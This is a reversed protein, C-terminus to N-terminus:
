TIHGSRPLTRNSMCESLLAVRLAQESGWKEKISFDRPVTSRLLQEASNCPIKRTIWHMLTLRYHSCNMCSQLVIIVTLWAHVHWYRTPLLQSTVDYNSTLNFNTFNEDTPSMFRFCHINLKRSSCLILSLFWNGMGTLMLLQYNQCPLILLQFAMM